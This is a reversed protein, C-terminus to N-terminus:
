FINDLIAVANTWLINITTDRQNGEGRQTPIEPPSALTLMQSFAWEELDDAWPLPYIGPLSWVALYTNFNGGVITPIRPDTELNLINDLFPHYNTDHYINIIYFSSSGLYVDLTLLHHNSDSNLWNTINFHSSAFCRYAIVKYCKDQAVKPYIYDWRPNAMSDLIDVGEPDIDSHAV